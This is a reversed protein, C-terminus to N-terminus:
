KKNRMQITPQYNLKSSKIDPQEQVLTGNNYDNVAQDIEKQSNMVFPGYHAIPENIPEGVLLLLETKKDDAELKLKKAEVNLVTNSKADKLKGKYVLLMTKRNQTDIDLTQQADLEIDVVSINAPLSQLPGSLQQKNIQINGGIVKVKAGSFKVWPMETNKVDQYEPRKMKNKAPLNIWLQFGVTQSEFKEPMESHIVGSGASMWQAGGSQIKGTNGMSDKHSFAGQKLYTLTEFGRHPHPPFGKNIEKSDDSKIQDILLFPDLFHDNLGHVRTLKVGAGDSTPHTNKQALIIM